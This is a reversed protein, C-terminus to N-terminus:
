SRAAFAATLAAVIGIKLIDGSHNTLSATCSPCLEDDYIPGGKAYDVCGPTRCVLIKEHCEPCECIDRRIYNEVFVSPTVVNSCYPCTGSHKTSM